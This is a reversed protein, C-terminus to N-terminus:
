PTQSRSGHLETLQARVRDAMVLNGKREFRDLAQELAASAEHLKGGLGLVEGLAAYAQGQANLHDSDRCLAVAEHALRGAEVHEGRRALVKARVSRSSAEFQISGGILGQSRLAWEDAEDFRGLEYYVQAVNAASEALFDQREQQEHLRFGEEAFEAASIPDGALLEVQASEFATLNALLLGGGREAQENRAVVLIARAEDFRGVMALSWAKYARFFQDQGVQAENEALWALLAAVPTTGAFRCWALVGLIWSAEYGARRASEFAREYAELSADQRERAAALEGVASYAIYLAMHDRAAELEPLAEALIADLGEVGSEPDLDVRGVAAQIKACLEGVRNGASAAREALSKARRIAEESRGTWFQAQGLESELLLDVEPQPVLAAARELLRVAAGYDHRRAARRGADTLRQRAAAALAVDEPLGLEIRYDLARELHYGVIEDIEVLASGHQELWGALNRHFDSRAGKPLADYAADRILIHRFRFGDEGALQPRDPEILGKRVLAALYPTVHAAEQALAQVPGRHFVEGEVSACELVSREAPDLQDLRAALLAHLTPPVVTGDNSNTDGTMAMMEGVFLPNGGATRTIRERLKGTIQSPILEDVAADALPQLQLTVPWTPRREVLEPRAMCLLLLPADRSLLAVHEILDRFAEEGWQIDDFVLILPREAAAHEVTKRFAWAIEEPSSSAEGQGLLSRIALAAAEDPPLVDLQKLVEVVPWYTIGDGYPLCRGRVVTADLSALAEAVLRSKGVGAEGVVTVLECRRNDQAQEWSARLVAVEQERGVFPMDHRREPADHVAVLRYAAVPEAKGKLQLPEVAEVDIADHVLVLTPEGILVESPRAAQELRAAVNVADGTALREVTGTVVEGTMVGIRGELGLEPLADRMEAAARVARLADDEHSVPVGFVAMIADGIFKELTGGHREVAEKTREFYRALLARYPEPDIAEGLATSGALDCFLVTVTRRQPLAEGPSVGIASGCEECFNAGPRNVHGCNPCVSV